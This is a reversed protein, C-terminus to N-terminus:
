VVNLMCIKTVHRAVHTGGGIPESWKQREGETPQLMECLFRM